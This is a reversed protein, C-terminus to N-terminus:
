VTQSIGLVLNQDTHTCITVRQDKQYLIITRSEQLFIERMNKFTKILTIASFISNTKRNYPGADVIKASGNGGSVASYRFM